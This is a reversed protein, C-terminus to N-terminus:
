RLVVKPTERYGPTEPYYSVTEKVLNVVRSGPTTFTVLLLARNRSGCQSSQALSPPLCPSGQAELLCSPKTSGLQDLWHTQRAGHISDPTGFEGLRCGLKPKINALNSMPEMSFKTNHLHGPTSESKTDHTNNAEMRSKLLGQNINLHISILPSKM